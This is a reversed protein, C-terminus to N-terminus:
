RHYWGVVRLGEADMAAKAELESAPDMECRDTQESGALGRCPFAKRIVLEGKRADWTGGLYGIVEFRSLHAHFDAVLMAEPSITCRFPQKGPPFPACPILQLAGTMQAGSM